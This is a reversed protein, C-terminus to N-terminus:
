AKVLGVKCGNANKATLKVQGTWERADRSEIDRFEQVLRVIVYSAEMLAKQRGVCARPGNAFPVFEWTAPKFTDWRDPDFEEVNPGWISELHHIAYFSTTFLTGTPCYIPSAGDPGGGAPLKTNVLAVRDLQHFVPYLRLGLPAMDILLASGLNLMKTFTMSENLVKRLYHLSQLLDFNLERTGISLVEHRLKQWVGPHRSLAFFVNSILIATTEGAAMLAQLIESRLEIKDTTQEAMASLLNYSHSGSTTKQGESLLAQRSELTLDIYKEVFSHAKEYAKVWKPDWLLSKFPGLAIRMGTGFMAYDFAELFSKAEDTTSGSLSDISEGFLFM